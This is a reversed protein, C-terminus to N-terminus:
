IKEVQSVHGMREPFNNSKPINWWFRGHDNPKGENKRSSNDKNLLTPKVYYSSDYPLHSRWAALFFLNCKIRKKKQTCLQM